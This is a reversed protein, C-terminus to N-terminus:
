FAASCGVMPMWVTFGGIFQADVGADFQLRDSVGYWGGAGVIPLGGGTFVGGNVYAGGSGIGYGAGGGVFLQTAGGVSGTVNLWVSAPDFGYVANTSLAAAVGGGNLSFAVTPVASVSLADTLAFAAKGGVGLSGLGFAPTIGVDPVGVRLEFNDLIGLRGTVGTTGLATTGAASMAAVAGEVVVHGAGPTATSDGIGPRDPSLNPGDALAPALLVLLALM